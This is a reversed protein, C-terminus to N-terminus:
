EAVEVVEGSSSVQNWVIGEVYEAIEAERRQESMEDWGDPLDFDQEDDSKGVMNWEVYIRLKRM